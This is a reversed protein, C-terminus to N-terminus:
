EFSKKPAMVNLKIVPALIAIILISLPVVSKLIVSPLAVSLQIVTSLIANM